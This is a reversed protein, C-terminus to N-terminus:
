YKSFRIVVLVGVLLVVVTNIAMPSGNEPGSIAQRHMNVPLYLYM